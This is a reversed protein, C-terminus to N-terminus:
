DISIRRIETLDSGTVKIYYLGKRLKSVDILTNGSKLDTATSTVLDGLQDMLIVQYQDNGEVQVTIEDSAPNPFVSMSALSLCHYAYVSLAKYQSTGCENTVSVKVQGSYSGNGTYLMIQNDLQGVISWGAPYTWSYSYNPKHGTPVNATYSTFQGNCVAQQGSITLDAAAIIGTYINTSVTTEIPCLTPNDHQIEATLTGLGTQSGNRRVYAVYNESYTIELNGTVSWNVTHDSTSFPANVLYYAVEDTGCLTHDSSPDTLQIWPFGTTNTGVVAPNNSLWPGLSNQLNRGPLFAGTNDIGWSVDFRGYEAWRENCYCTNDGFNCQTDFHGSLQGVVRHNQNFLPSGSSGPQATGDDFRVRWHTNAPAPPSPGWSVAQAQDNEISIKMVDGAPHHIGAASTAGVASRDWGALGMNPVGVPSDDLEVLLFDTNQWGARFQSGTFSLFSIDDPGDCSPSKYQFRFVANEIQDREFTSLTGDFNNDICHFATLFNPTYDVCGNNLLAGSCARVGGIIVLAVSAAEHMWAVGGPPSCVVDNNCPASQGFGSSFMNKYGHVVQGISLKTEGLHSKPEFLELIVANGEILDTSLRRNKPNNLSSFPGSVMTKQENYIFLEANGPLFFEDFILNVSFAAPCKIKLRWLRGLSFDEWAGSNELDLQVDWAKGFRPPLGRAHDREDERLLAQVDVPRMTVQPPKKGSKFKLHSQLLEPSVRKTEIQAKATLAVSSVVLLIQVARHLPLIHKM